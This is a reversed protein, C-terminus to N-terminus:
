AKNVGNVDQFYLSRERFYDRSLMNEENIWVPSVYVIELYLGVYHDLMM